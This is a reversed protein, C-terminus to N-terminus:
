AVSRRPALVAAPAEYWNATRVLADGLAVRQRLGLETRARATSPVYREAVAGPKPSQAIRVGASPALRAAVTRALDAVSVEVESGVNYPRASAGRFLITWLWIVLDSAYLYSRYPTGDGAVQISEGQIADRLFNGAAFHRDLPMYPGVFAFCRAITAAFGHSRAYLSCLLEAARKGEGYVSSPATPDPAGTYDEPTHTIHSPQRGYVAGSSTFLLRKTRHTAAFDLVRRTGGVITEMMRLPAEAIMRASAETAAHIVYAYEGPPPVFTTVDGDLLQVSPHATIWPCKAEFALRNRTLVDVKVNLGLRDNAWLLSELLWCGFFGTGGTIFIRQGRVDGWMVRTQDLVSDLDAALPNRMM